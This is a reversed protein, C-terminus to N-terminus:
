ALQPRQQWSIHHGVTQIVHLETDGRAPQLISVGAVRWRWPIPVGVLKRLCPAGRWGHYCRATPNGEGLLLSYLCKRHARPVGNPAVSVMGRTAFDAARRCELVDRLRARGEVM